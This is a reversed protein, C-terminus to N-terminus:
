FFLNQRNELLSCQSLSPSIVFTWLLDKLSWKPNKQKHKIPQNVPQNAPQSASQRTPQNAASQWKQNQSLAGQVGSQVQVKSGLAPQGQIWWRGTQRTSTPIGSMIWIMWSKWPKEVRVAVGPSDSYEQCTSSHRQIISLCLFVCVKPLTSVHFTLFFLYNLFYFSQHRASVMLGKFLFGQMPLTLSEKDHSKKIVHIKVWSVETM